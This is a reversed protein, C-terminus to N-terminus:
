KETGSSPENTLYLGVWAMIEQLRRIRSRPLGSRSLEHCSRRFLCMRTPVGKIQLASYMQMAGSITCRHDEFSHLFLTPTTVNMAYSYPSQERLKEEHNWPTGGYVGPTGWIGFDTVGYDGAINSISRMSVAARFRKTHTIIWNTM